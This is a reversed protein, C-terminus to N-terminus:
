RRAALFTSGRFWFGAEGMAAVIGLQERGMIGAGGGAEFLQL